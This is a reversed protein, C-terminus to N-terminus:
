LYSRRLYGSLVDLAVVTAIIILLIAGASPYDYSRMAESFVMGIGGAGVLGVVTASRVNSEFRYLTYSIWLPMVQPIVGYLIEDLKGAGTVTIGDVPRQDIAEVAESFLKALAGTTSIWLALMGAMPGLGVAAVFILAFVLDNIARSADMLRRAPQYIWWPAINVASALGFPIACILSLLTGWIAMHMTIVMQELYVTWMTFDPPLFGPLWRGTAGSSGIVMRLMNDSGSVLAAPRLNIAVIGWVVLGIVLAWVCTRILSRTFDPEPPLTISGGPQVPRSGEIM